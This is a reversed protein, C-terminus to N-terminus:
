DMAPVNRVAKELMKILPPVAVFILLIGPIGKILVSIGVAREPLDLWRSALVALCLLVARDLIVTLVLTLYINWRCRQYFVAPIGALVVGEAMMFFAIPPFFPPMGTLLASVLPSMLGVALAVPLAILFGAAIVPFFMPLFASGLNVAHFLIPLVIAIAVLLGGFVIDRGSYSM